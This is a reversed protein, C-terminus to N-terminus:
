LKELILTGISQFYRGGDDKYNSVETVAKKKNKRASEDAVKWRKEKSIWM